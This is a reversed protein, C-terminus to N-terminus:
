ALVLRDYPLVEEADLHRLTVTQCACDIGDVVGEARRVGIPGLVDDLPVRVTSLDTEYYRVRIGHFADSNVLTVEIQNAVLCAPSSSSVPWSKVLFPLACKNDFDSLWSLLM